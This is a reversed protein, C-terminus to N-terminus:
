DSITDISLMQYTDFLKSKRAICATGMVHDHDMIPIFSANVMVPVQKSLYNSIVNFKEGSLARTYFQNWRTSMETDSYVPVVPDDIHIHEGTLQFVFQKYAENALIIRKNIDVAWLLESSHIIFADLLNGFILKNWGAHKVEHPIDTIRM